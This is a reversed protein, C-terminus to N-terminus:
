FIDLASLANMLTVFVPMLLNAHVCVHVCWKIEM